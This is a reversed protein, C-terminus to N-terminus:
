TFVILESIVNNLPKADYSNKLMSVITTFTQTKM